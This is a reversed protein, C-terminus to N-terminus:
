AINIIDVMGYGFAKMKGVGQKLFAGFQEPDTVELVGSMRVDPRRLHRTGGTTVTMDALTWADVRASRIKAGWQHQDMAFQDRLWKTYVYERSEPNNEKAIESLFVDLESGARWEFTEGELTMGSGASSKQVAPCVRTVYTYQGTPYQPVPKSASREWDCADYKAPPAVIQAHSQMESIPSPTYASVKTLESPEGMRWRHPGEDGFLEGLMCKVLYSTSAQLSLNHEDRVRPFHSSQLYIDSRYM